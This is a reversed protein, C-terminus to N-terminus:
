KNYWFKKSKTPKKFPGKYPTCNKEFKKLTIKGRHWLYISLCYQVNRIRIDKFSCMLIRGGDNEDVTCFMLQKQKLDLEMEVTQRGKPGRDKGKRYPEQREGNRIRSGDSHLRYSITDSKYNADDNVYQRKAEDIGISIRNWGYDQIYLTWRFVKNKNRPYDCDIEYYGYVTDGVDNKTRNEVTLGDESIVISRNGCDKFREIWQPYYGIILHIIANPAHQLLEYKQMQKRPRFCYRSFGSILHRIEEKSKKDEIYQTDPDSSTAKPKSVSAM